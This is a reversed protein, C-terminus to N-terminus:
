HKVKYKPAVTQAAIFDLSPEGCYAAIEGRVAQRLAIIDEWERGQPMIPPCITVTIKNPWMLYESERLVFRTGNLAVPCVPIQSEVAIKFAGLRFPRLGTAYSFTGEPFILISDGQKLAAEIHHTDELGKPLDQRDVVLFNLKRMFTRIIPAALLEKKGVMRTGPPM